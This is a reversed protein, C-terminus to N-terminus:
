RVGRREAVEVLEHLRRLVRVLRQLEDGEIRRSVTPQRTKEDLLVTSNENTDTARIVLAARQLGVETLMDYLRANSVVYEIKKNKGGGWALQYLPAQAIFVKGRRILEPMQ